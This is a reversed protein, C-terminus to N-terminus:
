DYLIDDRTELIPFDEFRNIYDVIICPIDLDNRQAVWLRSGGNTNCALIKSNDEQMDLPLRDNFGRDRIKPCWGANVIIPNRFGEKLISKELNNYFNTRENLGDIKRQAVVRRSEIAEDDWGPKGGSHPGCENFINKSKLIGYRLTYIPM